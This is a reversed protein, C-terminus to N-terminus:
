SELAIRAAANLDDARIVYLGPGTWHRLSEELVTENQNLDGQAFRVWVPRDLACFRWALQKGLQDWVDLDRLASNDGVEIGALDVLVKSPTSIGELFRNSQKEKGEVLSLLLDVVGSDVLLDFETENLKEAVGGSNVSDVICEMGWHTELPPFSRCEPLVHLIKCAKM